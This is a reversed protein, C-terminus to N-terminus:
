CIIRPAPVPPWLEKAFDNINVAARCIPCNTRSGSAQYWKRLCEVCINHGCHLFLRKVKYSFDDFCVPCEPTPYYKPLQETSSKIEQKLLQYIKDHLANGFFNTLVGPELYTSKNIIRLVEERINQVVRTIILNQDIDSTVHLKKIAEKAYSLSKQEIFIVSEEVLASEIEKDIYVKSFAISSPYYGLRRILIHSVDDSFIKLERAYSANHNSPMFLTDVLHSIYKRAQIESLAKKVTSATANSLILLNAVVLKIFRM